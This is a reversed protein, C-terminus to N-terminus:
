QAVGRSAGAYMAEIADAFHATIAARRLKQNATLLGSEPTLREPTLHFARVRRYHPLAANVETLAAEVAARDADGCLIATLHPRGHGIVVAQEVGPLGEVLRQEIPEPAVNHGSSPVLLDKVRGIVRTNGADDRDVQDGTRFWGGDVFAAATADDKRWYGAFVNPGRVLLEDGEGLRTEVDAIARGVRGAEVQGPTDMTVIATTETLGYVQYVPLGLTEFWRQTDVSLPASGCILCALDPGIQARIKAFVLPRAVALAARDLLTARGDRARAAARKGRSWLARIPASRAALKAEVGARIRDLLAPVNLLYNPRAARLETALDDLNTSVMIGGRRFLCMWLVVRSGAFCFPLYHFVRHDPREPGMMAEIAATVVPLMFDVNATSLIVGKPEGSTGSTYIITAPADPDRPAPPATVPSGAAGGFLTALLVAPASPWRETVAGLLRDDACLVARPEADHMMAVLEDPDQRAYMPVCVAGEALVALDAAVWRTSNPALLVVRDGPTVGLARLAARAEAVLRALAGATTPVLRDGHVETVAARDPAADLGVLIREIFNPTATM